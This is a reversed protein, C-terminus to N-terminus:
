SQNNKEGWRLKAGLLAFSAYLFGVIFVITFFSEALTFPTMDNLFAYTVWALFGIGVNAVSDLTFIEQGTICKAVPWLFFFSAVYLLFSGTIWDMFKETGQLVILAFLALAGALIAKLFPHMGNDKKDRM